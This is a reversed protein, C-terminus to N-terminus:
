QVEQRGTDGLERAERALRHFEDNANVNRKPEIHIRTRASPTMGFEVSFRHLQEVSKNAISLAPNQIAYGSPSKVIVGQDALLKEADIWRSWVQCYAALAARDISALIGMSDLERTIRLWEKRAEEDLHDPCEPIGDPAVLQQKLPRKGPNGNLRKITMPTPKRGRM